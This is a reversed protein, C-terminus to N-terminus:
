FKSKPKTIFVSKIYNPEYSTLDVYDQKAWKQLAESLLDRAYLASKTHKLEKEKDLENIFKIAGSGVVVTNNKEIRLESNITVFQEEVIPNLHQDYIGMYADSRRADVLAIIQDVSPYDNLAVSALGKLTSVAILPINAGMCIGKALSCGIRLGTYSGPGDSIVVGDLEHIYLGANWMVEDVFPALYVSHSNPENIWKEQIINESSSLAVSCVENSSEILLLKPM